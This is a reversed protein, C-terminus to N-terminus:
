NQGTLHGAKKDFFKLPVNEIYPASSVVMGYREELQEATLFERCTRSVSYKFAFRIARSGYGPEFGDIHLVRWNSNYWHWHNTSSEPMDFNAAARGTVYTSYFDSM